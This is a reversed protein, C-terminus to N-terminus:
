LNFIPDKTDDGAVHNGGSAAGKTPCDNDPNFYTGHDTMYNITGCSSDAGAAGAAIGTASGAKPACAGDANWHAGSLFGNNVKGCGADPPNQPTCKTDVDTNGFWYGKVGCDKDHEGAFTLPATADLISVTLITAGTRKLFRRKTIGTSTNSTDQNM